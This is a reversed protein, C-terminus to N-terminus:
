IVSVREPTCHHEISSPAILFTDCHIDAADAGLLFVHEKTKKVFKRGGCIYIKWNELDPFNEEVYSQIDQNKESNDEDQLVCTHVKLNAYQSALGELISNAYLSHKDFGGQVIHINPSHNQSLANRAIGLLPALGTGVGILLLHKQSAEETYICNGLPESITLTDNVHVDHYLWNTVKGEIYYKIHLELECKEDCLSAISYSRIIGDSSTLNIYQGPFFHYDVPHDIKLIMIGNSLITKEKLTCEYKKNTEACKKISINGLPACLCSLFKAQMRDASSLGAQSIEPVEGDVLAMMCSQCLGSKCFYPIDVGHLLLCDLVTQQDNLKYSTGNYNIIAM